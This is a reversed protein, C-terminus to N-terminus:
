DTNGHATAVSNLDPNDPEVTDVPEVVTDTTTDVDEDDSVCAAVATALVAAAVIRARRSRTNM